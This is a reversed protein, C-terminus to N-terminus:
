RWPAERDIDCGFDPALIMPGGGARRLIDRCKWGEAIFEGSERVGSRRADDAGARDAQRQRQVGRRAQGLRDHRKSAREGLAVVLASGRM